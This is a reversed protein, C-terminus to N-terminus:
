QRSSRAIEADRKAMAEKAYDLAHLGLEGKVLQGVPYATDECGMTQKGANTASTAARRTVETVLWVTM